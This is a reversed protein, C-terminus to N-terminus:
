KALDALGQERSMKGQYGLEDRAKQDNVTIEQNLVAVAMRTLPPVKDLDFRRVIFEGINAIWLALWHPISRDPLTMDQTKLMETIFNRFEVPAGDTLFYVNGGTGKELALLVGEVANDVHCTSTLYHGHNFWVWGGKQVIDIMAPLLVTDDNGWILRPRVVVTKLTDCNATVVKKEALMKTLPYLGMPKRPYPATEDVHIMPKGDALVAETSIHVLCPINMTQCAELVQQTGTVNVRHFELPDGWQAVIAAAHIVADCDEMGRQLADDNNLEGAIVEAGLAEVVEGSPVSRALAQVTDGRKVLARILNRGLYGSGGTVFIKM